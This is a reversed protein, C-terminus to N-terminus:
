NEPQFQSSKLLSQYLHKGTFKTFNRLVGGTTAEVYVKFLILDDRNQITFAFENTCDNIDFYTVFLYRCLPYVTCFILNEM